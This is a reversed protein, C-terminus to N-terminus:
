RNTFVFPHEVDLGGLGVDPATRGLHTPPRVVAPPRPRVIAGHAEVEGTAGTEDDEDGVHQRRDAPEADGHEDSEQEHGRRVCRRRRAPRTRQVPRDLGRHPQRHREPEDGGRGAHHEAEPRLPAQSAVPPHHDLLHGHDRHHDGIEQDDCGGGVIARSPCSDPGNSSGAMAWTTTRPMAVTTESALGNPRVARPRRPSGASSSSDSGSRRGAAEEAPAQKKARREADERGGAEQGPEAGGAAARGADEPLRAAVARGGPGLGPRARVDRAAAHSRSRIPTSTPGRTAGRRSAHRCPRWPAARRPRHRRARGLRVADVGARRAPGAGVVRRVGDQAAREPQLRRLDAGRAGGEVVRRHDRRSPPPRARAGGRGRRAAGRDAVVRPRAAHVRPHRPQRHDEAVRPDRARRAADEARAGRRPGRRVRCRTAPRPRHAARRRADDDAALNPWVHFGLCGLNVAWVIHALDAAVLAKSTTGNPTSVVSTELWDPADKPVRKQFFSSGGVGNPFRQMLVPRGRIAGM